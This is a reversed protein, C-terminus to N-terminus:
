FNGFDELTPPPPPPPIDNFESGGNFGGDPFSVPPPAPPIDDFTEVSSSSPPVFGGNGGFDDFRPPPPFSGSSGGSSSGGSSGELKGYKSPAGYLSRKKKDYLPRAQEIGLEKKEDLIHNAAMRDFKKRDKIFEQRSVEYDRDFSKKEDLYVKYGGSEEPVVETKKQKRYEAADKLRQKEYAEQEALFEKEGALREKEFDKQKKQHEAFGSLREIDESSAQAHIAASLTLFTSLILLRKM